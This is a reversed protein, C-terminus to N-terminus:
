LILFESYHIMLSYHMKGANYSSKDRLSVGRDMLVEHIGVTHLMWQLDALHGNPVPGVFQNTRICIQRCLIYYRDKKFIIITTPLSSLPQDKLPEM